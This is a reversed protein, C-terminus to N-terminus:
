MNILLTDINIYIDVPAGITGNDGKAGANGQLALWIYIKM